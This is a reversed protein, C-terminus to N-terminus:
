NDCIHLTELWRMRNQYLTVYFRFPIFSVVAVDLSFISGYRCVTLSDPYRLLYLCFMRLVTCFVTPVNLIDRTGYIYRRTYRRPRDANRQRYRVARQQFARYPRFFKVLVSFLKSRLCILM